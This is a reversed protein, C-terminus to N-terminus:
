TLCALRTRLHPLCAEHLFHRVLPYIRKSYERVFAHFFRRHTERRILSGEYLVQFCCAQGLVRLAGLILLELPAGQRGSADVKDFGDDTFWKENRMTTVQYAPCSSFTLIRTNVTYIDSRKMHRLFVMKKYLSYPVRFALRFEKGYISTSDTYREEPNAVYQTWWMSETYKGRPRFERLRVIRSSRVM